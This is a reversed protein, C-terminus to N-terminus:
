RSREMVYEDQLKRCEEIFDHVKSVPEDQDFIRGTLGEGKHIMSIKVCDAYNGVTISPVEVVHKIGEEVHWRRRYEQGLRRAETATETFFTAYDSTYLDDFYVRYTKM